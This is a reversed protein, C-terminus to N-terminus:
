NDDEDEEDEYLHHKILDHTKEEEHTFVNQSINNINYASALNAKKGKSPSRNRKGTHDDEDGLNHYGDNAGVAKRLDM